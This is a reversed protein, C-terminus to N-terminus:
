ARRRSSRRSPPPSRSRISCRTSRWAATATRARAPRARAATVAEGDGQGDGDTRQVGLLIERERLPIGLKEYTKLIEPDVEDLSKLPDRKPASYYYIDQYDIPGYDVRAWKPERM